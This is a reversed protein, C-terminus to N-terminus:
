EASGEAPATSPASVSFRPLLAAIQEEGYYVELQKLTQRYATLFAVRAESLAASAATRAGEAAGLDSWATFLAENTSVMNDFRENALGPIEGAGRLQAALDRVASVQAMGSLRVYDSMTRGATMTLLREYATPNHLKASGFFQRLANDAADDAEAFRHLAAHVAGTAERHSNVASLFLTAAELALERLYGAARAEVDARGTTAVVANAGGILDEHTKPRFTNPM